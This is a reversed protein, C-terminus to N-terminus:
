NLNSTVAAVGYIAVPVILCLRMWWRSGPACHTNQEDRRRTARFVVVAGGGAALTALPTKFLMALPFYYWWGTLSHKGLLFSDRMLASQYTYLLGYLWAQPLLRHSEAFLV